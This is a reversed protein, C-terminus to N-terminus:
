LGLPQVGHRSAHQGWAGGVTFRPYQTTGAANANVNGLRGRRAGSLGSMFMAAWERATMQAARVAEPSAFRTLPDPLSPDTDPIGTVNAFYWNWEWPHHKANPGGAANEMLAITSAVTSAGNGNGGGSPTTPQATIPTPPTTTTSPGTVVPAPGPGVPLQPQGPTPGTPQGIPYAGAGGTTIAGGGSGGNNSGIDGTITGLLGSIGGNQTIQYLVYAGVGLLIITTPEMSSKAM